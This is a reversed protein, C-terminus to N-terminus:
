RPEGGVVVRVSVVVGNDTVTGAVAVTFILPLTGLCRDCVISNPAFTGFRQCRPCARGNRSSDSTGSLPSAGAGSPKRIRV